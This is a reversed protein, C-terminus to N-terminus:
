ASLFRDNRLVAAGLRKGGGERAAEGYAREVFTRVDRFFDSGAFSDRGGQRLVYSPHYTPLMSIGYVISWHGRQRTIGDFQGTLAGMAVNGLTLIAKPLCDQLERVLHPEHELLEEETPTRNNEPRLKYANTVYVDDRTIGAAELAENLLRGSDGVFPIGERDENAGPAEGLIFGPSPCPGSGWVMRNM